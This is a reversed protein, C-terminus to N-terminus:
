EGKVSEMMSNLDHLRGEIDGYIENYFEQRLEKELFDKEGETIYASVPKSVTLIMTMSLTANEDDKAIQVAKLDSLDLM